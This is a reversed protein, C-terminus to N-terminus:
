SQRQMWVADEQSIIPRINGSSDEYLLTTVCLPADPIKQSLFRVEPGSFDPLPPLQRELYQFVEEFLQAAPDQLTSTLTVRQRTTGDPMNVVFRKNVALREATSYDTKSLTKLLDLKERESGEMVYAKGSLSYIVQSSSDYHAWLNFVIEM